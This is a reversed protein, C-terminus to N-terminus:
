ETTWEIRFFVKTIEFLKATHIKQVKHGRKANSGSSAYFLTRESIRVTREIEKYKSYIQLRTNKKTNTNRM